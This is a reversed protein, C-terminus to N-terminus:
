QTRRHQFIPMWDKPDNGVEARIKDLLAVTEDRASLVALLDDEGTLDLRAIVSHAGHKVLFCRSSDGLERVWRFEEETLGFDECYSKKDAKHNPMFIQTPSQEIIVDGIASEVIGKASQSGLGVLGDRKRITRQWDEIRDSVYQDKLGKWAEDIFIITKQGQLIQDVRHFLYMLTPPRGIADDLIFTLDFGTTRTEFSLLDHENDFLWAREGEGWWPQMRAALSDASQTEHGQFLEQLISLRRQEIPIEFNSEIADAIIKHDTSSLRSGDIPKGLQGLWDRLFARNLPTDDIQLPNFGTPHGPRIVSYQGGIARVFIDAGRRFDFFVSFPKFRQAQAMLFCLVVTKGTGSPGIVTFNGLDHQHFNFAYPTGSTTELMAVCEGWHNGHMTGRPFNHLSAYGAFNRTSIESKRAIFSFNGPMQAWFCAEHNLDERVAILGLDTLSSITDTIARDLCPKDKGKVMCTLHHEGFQIRGASLDDAADDLQQRLTVADDEANDMIRATQKIRTSAQQRDVYAFTQTIVLEHPLRLLGDLMGPGTGPGYEKVSIMAAFISDDCEPGRIEMTERGFFPRKYGLYSDLPARPLRIPRFEHNLLYSLFELIESNTGYDTEYVGLRRAGYKALTGVMNDTADNLSKIDAKRKAEVAARDAATSLFRGLGEAWGATGRLSRRVVTIYQDNVFLRKQSLKREWTRDLEACFGEFNSEPYGYVERRIIHYYLGIRSTGISMLLTNRVRKLHNIESQDATEFAFGDVKIVQFVYGDKTGITQDDVHRTYPLFDAMATEKVAEAGYRTRNVATNRM